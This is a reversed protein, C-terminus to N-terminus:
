IFTIDDEDQNFYKLLLEERQRSEQAEDISEISIYESSDIKPTSKKLKKYPWHIKKLDSKWTGDILYYYGFQILNKLLIAINKIFRM